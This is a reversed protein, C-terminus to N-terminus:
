KNNYNCLLISYYYNYNLVILVSITTITSYNLVVVNQKYCNTLTFNKYLLLKVRKLLRVWTRWTCPIEMHEAQGLAFAM